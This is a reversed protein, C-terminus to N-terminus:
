WLCYQFQELLTSELGPPNGLARWKGGGDSSYLLGANDAAVYVVGSVPDIQIGQIELLGVNQASKLVDTLNTWSQAGDTSKFLDGSGSGAFLVQPQRPDM